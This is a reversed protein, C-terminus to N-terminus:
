YLDGIIFPESLLEEASFESSALLKQRERMEIVLDKAEQSLDDFPKKRHGEDANVMDLLIEDKRKATSYNGEIINQIYLFSSLLNFYSSSLLIYFVEWVTDKDKCLCLYFEDDDITWVSESAKIGRFLYGECLTERNGWNSGKLKVSLYDNKLVVEIDRKKTDRPIKMFVEVDTTSQQWRFRETETLSFFKTRNEKTSIENRTTSSDFTTTTATMKTTTTTTKTTTAM